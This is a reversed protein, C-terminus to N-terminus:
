TTIRDLNGIVNRIIKNAHCSSKILFNNRLKRHIVELSDIHFVTYLQRSRINPGDLDAFMTWNHHVLKVMYRHAQRLKPTVNLENEISYVSGYSYICANKVSVCCKQLERNQAILKNARSYLKGTAVKQTNSKRGIEVGLYERCESVRIGCVSVPPKRHPGLRLIWSKDANFTIDNYLQAFAFTIDILRKLGYPSSAILLVDDAYIIVCLLTFGNLSKLLVGIGTRELDIALDDYSASFLIGSLVGGQKVGLRPFFVLTSCVSIKTSYLQCIIIKILTYPVKRKILQDRIRQWSIKDFASSADLLCIHADYGRELTRVLEIAHATSHEKKYGFQCDKRELFPLLRNLLVKEFIWNESTGISIPRWAKKESYDKKGPKPIVELSTRFFEWDPTEAGSLVNNCFYKLVEALCRKAAHNETCLNKWHCHRTYSKNTDIEGVATNIEDLQMNEFLSIDTESIHENVKNLIDGSYITENAEFVDRFHERWMAPQASRSHGDIMAPQATKPKKFLQKHCNKLTTREAINCAIERRLLRFQRRYRSKSLRLQQEIIPPCRNPGGNLFQVQHWYDVDEKFSSMREKWMPINHRRPAKNPDIKPICSVAATTINDVLEQYLTHGEIANALYKMLSKRCMKESLRSYSKVAEDSAKDWCLYKTRPQTVHRDNEINLKAVVPFHDSNVYSTSVHCSSLVHSISRTLLIRDLTRGSEHTGESPDRNILDSNTDYNRSSLFESVIRSRPTNDNPDVNFDGLTIVDLIEDEVNHAADLHGIAELMAEQNEESTRNSNDAPLYVNNVLIKHENLFVSLCRKSDYHAKFAVSKSIILAVGGFPRGRRRAKNMEM